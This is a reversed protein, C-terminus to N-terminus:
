DLETPRWHRCCRWLREKGTCGVREQYELEVREMDGGVLRQRGGAAACAGGPRCGRALFRTIYRWPTVRRRIPRSSSAPIDLQMYHQFSDLIYLTEFQDPENSLSDNQITAIFPLQLDTCTHPHQVSGLRIVLLIQM